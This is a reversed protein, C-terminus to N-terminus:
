MSLLNFYQGRSPYTALEFNENKLSQLEITNKHVREFSQKEWPGGSM